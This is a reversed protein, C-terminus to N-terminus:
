VANRLDSPNTWDSVSREVSVAPRFICDQPVSGHQPTTRPAQIYPSNRHTPHVSFVRLSGSEQAPFSSSIKGLRWKPTIRVPVPFEESPFWATKGVNVRHRPLAKHM